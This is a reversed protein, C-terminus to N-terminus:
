VDLYNNTNKIIIYIVIIAILAKLCMKHNHNARFGSLYIIGSKHKM